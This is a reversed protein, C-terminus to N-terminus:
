EVGGDAPALLALVRKIRPGYNDRNIQRYEDTLGEWWSDSNGSIAVVARDEDTWRYAKKLVEVKYNEVAFWVHQGGSQAITGMGPARSKTTSGTHGFGEIRVQSKGDKVKVGVVVGELVAADHTPERRGFEVQTLRVRDGSHVDLERFLQESTKQAAGTIMSIFGSPVLLREDIFASHPSTM